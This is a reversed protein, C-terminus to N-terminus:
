GEVRSFRGSIKRMVRLLGKLPGQSPENKPQPAAPAQQPYRRTPPIESLEEDDEAGRLAARQAPSLELFRAVQLALAQYAERGSGEPVAAGPQLAWKALAPDHPIAPELLLSEFGQHLRGLIIKQLPDDGLYCTPLLGLLDLDPSRRSAERLSKATHGITRLALPDVALTVLVGECRALTRLAARETLPPADVLVVDLHRPARNLDGVHEVQSWCGPPVILDLAPVPTAEHLGVRLGKHALWWALAAVTTTRGCGGKHCAIALRYPAPM